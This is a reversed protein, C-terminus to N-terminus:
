SSRQAIVMMSSGSKRVMDMSRGYVWFPLLITSIFTLMPLHSLLKKSFKFHGSLKMSQKLVDFYGMGGVTYLFPSKGQFSINVVQFGKRSLLEKISKEGFDFLHYPAEAHAWPLGTIKSLFLTSLAFGSDANPILLVLFGSRNLLSHVRQLVRGPSLCHELVDGMHVVDFHGPEFDIEEISGSYVDLGNSRGIAVADKNVDCGTVNWGIERLHFILKGTSCGLDLLRGSSVGADKLLGNLEEASEPSTKSLDSAATQYYGVSMQYIKSLYDKDPQPWVFLLECRKCQWLHWSRKTAVLAYAGSGCCECEISPYPALATKYM